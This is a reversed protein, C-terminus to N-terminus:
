RQALGPSTNRASLLSTDWSYHFHAPREVRAGNKPAKAM